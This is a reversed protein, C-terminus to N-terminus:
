EKASKRTLSLFISYLDPKPREKKLYKIAEELILIDDKFLGLAVNCNNCLIGRIIGTNHDHDVHPDDLLIKCIACRNDQQKLLDQFEDLSIGYHQQLLRDKAEKSEQERKERSKAAKYKADRERECTKCCSVYGSKSVKSLRFHSSECEGCLICVPHHYDEKPM